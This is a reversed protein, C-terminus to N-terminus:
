EKVIRVTEKKGDATAIRLMYVGPQLGAIAVTQETGDIAATKLRRGQIDLVTLTGKIAAPYKLHVADTAPVPYVSALSAGQVQGIGSPLQFQLFACSRNNGPVADTLPSAANFPFASVCFNNISGAWSADFVTPRSLSISDHAHVMMGTYLVYKSLGQSSAQLVTDNNVIFYVAISDTAHIDDPGHNVITFGIPTVQGTNITTNNAPATLRAQVDTLRQAGAGCAILLLPLLMYVKKM